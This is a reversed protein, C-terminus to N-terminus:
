YGRRVLRKREGRLGVRSIQAKRINRRGASSRTQTSKRSRKATKVRKIGM